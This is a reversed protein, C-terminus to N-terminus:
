GGSAVSCRKIGGSGKECDSGFGAQLKDAEPTGEGELPGAEAEAAKAAAEAEAEAAKRDEAARAAAEAERAARDAEYAALEAEQLASALVIVPVEGLGDQKDVVAANMAQVHLTEFFPVLDVDKMRKSALVRVQIQAGVSAFFYRGRMGDGLFDETVDLGRVTMFPRGQQNAAMMQLEFRQQMAMFSTFIMNPYRIAQIMVRREGKEYTLIVVESGSGARSSGVSEVLGRSKEDAKVGKKPMFVDIDGKTAPRVTWGEPPRPMMDALATPLGASASSRTLGAIRDSFGGLYERFTLGEEDEASAWQRSMNYDLMLFGGIGITAMLLFGFFRLV